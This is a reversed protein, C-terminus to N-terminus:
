LAGLGALILYKGIAKNYEEETMKYFFDRKSIIVESYVSDEDIALVKHNGDVAISNNARLYKSGGSFIRLEIVKAYRILIRGNYKRVNTSYVIKLYDGEKVDRFKIRKM